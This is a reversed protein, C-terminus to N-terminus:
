ISRLHWGRFVEVEVAAGAAELAVELADTRTPYLRATVCTRDDAFVELVSRDLFARLRIAGDSLHQARVFEATTDLALSAATSDVQVEQETGSYRVVTREQDDPSKRLLLSLSAGPPVRACLEVELADGHLEPVGLRTGAELRFPALAHERLRLAAYEAAPTMRLTGDPAVSLERALSLVGAWSASPRDVDYARGEKIWGFLLRRGAPDLVSLGAYYFSGHDTTGTWEPTFTRGDFRGSQVYTHKYELQESVLLVDRDGLRFLNPCEWVMTNSAFRGRHAVGLYEWARLDSSRYLLLVGEPGEVGGTTGNRVGSGLLMSWEAGDHWVWPDRVEPPDGVIDLGPPTSSLVPEPEKTWTVLGDRSTALCQVQRPSLGTYLLTPVGDDIVACGSWCGAADYGDPTPTLAIPQHEWHVLDDSVAHGWHIRDHFPGNPNHQYFLHLRGDVFVLGNPDNLWGAPPLFHFRPRHPDARPDQTHQAARTAQTTADSSTSTRDTM